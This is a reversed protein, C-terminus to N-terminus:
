LWSPKVTKIIDLLIDIIVVIFILFVPTVMFAKVIIPVDPINLTLGAWFVSLAVKVIDGIFGFMGWLDTAPTKKDAFTNSEKYPNNDFGTVSPNFMACVVGVIIVYICLFVFFNLKGIGLYTEAM